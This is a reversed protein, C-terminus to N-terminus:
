SNREGGDGLLARRTLTPTRNYSTLKKTKLPHKNFYDYINYCAKEGNIIYSFNSKKSHAEAKALVQKL